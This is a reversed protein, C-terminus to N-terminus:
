HLDRVFRKISINQYETHFDLPCIREVQYNQTFSEYITSLYLNDGLHTFDRMYSSYYPRVGLECKLNLCANHGSPGEGSKHFCHPASSIGNLQWM